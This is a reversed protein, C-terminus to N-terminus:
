THIRRLTASESPHSRLRNLGTACISDSAYSNPDGSWLPIYKLNDLPETRLEPDALVSWDEQWRNLQIAPREPPGPTMSTAGDDARIGHAALFAAGGALLSAWRAHRAHVSVPNM